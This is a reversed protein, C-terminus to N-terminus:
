NTSRLIATIPEDHHKLESELEHILNLGPRFVPLAAYLSGAESQHTNRDVQGTTGTQDIGKRSSLLRLHRLSCPQRAPVTEIVANQCALAVSARPRGISSFKPPLRLRRRPKSGTVPRISYM